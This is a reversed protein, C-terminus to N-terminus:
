HRWQRLERCFSLYVISEICQKCFSVLIFYDFSVTELEWKNSSIVQVQQLQSQNERDKQELLKMMEVKTLDQYPDQIQSKMGELRQLVDESSPRYEPDNDLCEKVLQVIPHREGLQQHLQDIYKGRREVETLAVLRGRSNPDPYTPPLLDHPFDQM